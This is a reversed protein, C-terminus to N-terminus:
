NTVASSFDTFGGNYNIKRIYGLQHGGNEIVNPVGPTEFLVAVEEVIPLYTSNSADTFDGM